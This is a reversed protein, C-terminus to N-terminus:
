QAFINTYNKWNIAAKYADLNLRPVKIRATSDFASSGLSPPTTASIEVSTCKNFAYVGITTVKDGLIVKTLPCDVFAHDNINTLTASLKVDTLKECRAFAQAYIGTVKDGMQVSELNDCHLFAYGNIATVNEPITVTTLADCDEFTGLDIRTLTSPLNIEILNDCNGFLATGSIRVGGDDSGYFQQYVGNGSYTKINTVGGVGLYVSNGASVRYDITSNYKKLYIPYTSTGYYVHATSGNTLFRYGEPITISKVGSGYFAAGHLNTKNIYDYDPIVPLNVSELVRCGAFAVQWINYEGGSEVTFEPFKKM